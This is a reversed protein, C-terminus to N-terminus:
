PVTRRDPPREAGPEPHVARAARDSSRALGIRLVGPSRRLSGHAKFCRSAEKSTLRGRPPVLHRTSRCRTNGGQLPCSVWSRCGRRHTYTCGVMRRRCAAVAESQAASQTHHCNRRPTRALGCLSTRSADFGPGGVGRGWREPREQRNQGRRGTAMVVWCTAEAQGGSRTGGRRSSRSKMTSCRPTILIRFLALRM